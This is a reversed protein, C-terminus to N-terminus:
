WRPSTAEEVVALSAISTDEHADAAILLLNQSPRASM